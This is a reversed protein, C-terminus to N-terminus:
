RYSNDPPGGSPLSTRLFDSKLAVSPPFDQGVGLFALFPRKRKLFRSELRFGASVNLGRLSEPAKKLLSRILLEILFSKAPPALATERQLSDRREGARNTDTHSMPDRDAM